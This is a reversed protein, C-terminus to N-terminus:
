KGVWRTQDDIRLFIRHFVLLDEMIAVQLSANNKLIIYEILRLTKEPKRLYTPPSSGFKRRFLTMVRYVTGCFDKHPGVYPLCFIIAATPEASAM